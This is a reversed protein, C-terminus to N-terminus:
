ERTLQRWRCRTLMALVAGFSPIALAGVLPTPGGLEVLRRFLTTDVLEAGKFVLKVSEM